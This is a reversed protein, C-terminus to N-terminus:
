WLAGDALVIYLIPGIGWILGLVAWLAKKPTSLDGRGLLNLLMLVFAVPHLILAVLLELVLKV